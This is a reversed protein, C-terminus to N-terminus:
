AGLGSLVPAVKTPRSSKILAQCRRSASKDVAQRSTLGKKRKYILRKVQVPQDPKQAHRGPPLSDRICMEIDGHELNIHAGLAELGKLHLDIPRTGIGCGGPMSIKVRGMRALLPGMILVSARMKQIYHYPATINTIERCDVTMVGEDFDVKAGLIELVESITEVDSLQPVDRIVCIDETLLTGVIIPLVANKAGSITVEGKLPKGGTVIIKDLIGGAWLIQWTAM